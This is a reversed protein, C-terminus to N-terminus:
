GKADMLVREIHEVRRRLDQRDASSEKMFEEIAKLTQSVKAWAALGFAALTLIDGIHLTLDVSM